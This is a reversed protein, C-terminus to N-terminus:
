VVELWTEPFRTIIVDNVLLTTELTAPGVRWTLTHVSLVIALSNAEITPGGHPARYKFLTKVMTGVVIM